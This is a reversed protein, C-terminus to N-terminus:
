GQPTDLVIKQQFVQAEIANAIEVTDINLGYSELTKKAMALAETRKTFNDESRYIQEVTQVTRLAVFDLLDRQEASLKAKALGYQKNLYATIQGLIVTFLAVILTQLAPSIAELFDKFIQEM